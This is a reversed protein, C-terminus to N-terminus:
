AEATRSQDRILDSAIMVIEHEIREANLTAYLDRVTQVICNEENHAPIIVSLKM